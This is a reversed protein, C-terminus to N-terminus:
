RLAPLLAGREVLLMTLAEAEAGGVAELEERSVGHLEMLRRLKAEDVGLVSDDEVGLLRSARRYAEWGGEEDRALILLAARETRRSLGVLRIADAIQDRCSVYLLVEMPLSRAINYGSQFAKIANVASLYIHEWGAVRDADLLQALHPSAAESVARLLSDVDEVARLRFGGIYLHWSSDKVSIRHVM